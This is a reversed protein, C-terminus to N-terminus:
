QQSKGRTQACRFGVFSTARGPPMAYRLTVRLDEARFLYGGGRVVRKSGTKPGPPNTEPSQSYYNRLYWDAVWERVNGGMDYAGFFSPSDSTKFGQYNQGNYFGVPTTDNDFPDGSDWYNARSSDVTDGWAYIRQSTGRATKEWEAETPLRKNYFRCYADAGYWTVNVVPHNEYGPIVIYKGVDRQIRSSEASLDIFRQIDPENDPYKSLYDNLFAAFKQNTVPYKDIWFDDLYVKHVPREDIEFSDSGMMFEGAPVFIMDKFRNIIKATYSNTLGQSDKAQVTVFIEDFPEFQHTIKRELSWDSDWVSDANFDWRYFLNNGDEYDGSETADFTIKLPDSFDQVYHMDPYPKSYVVIERTVSINWGFNDKVELRVKKPGGGLQYCYSAERSQSWDTDFHGDDDWDWRLFIDFNHSCESADFHFTTEGAIGSDPYVQFAVKPPTSSLVIEDRVTKSLTSDPYRVQFYVSKKGDGPTLKWRKFAQFPEWKGDSLDPQNALMMDQAQPAVLDLNVERSKAYPLDDNISIKVIFHSYDPKIDRLIDITTDQHSIPFFHRTSDLRATDAVTTNIQLSDSRTQQQQTAIKKSNTTRKRQQPFALFPICLLLIVVGSIFCDVKGRQGHFIKM